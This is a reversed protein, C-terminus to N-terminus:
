DPGCGCGGVRGHRHGRIWGEAHVNQDKASGATDARRGLRIYGATRWSEIEGRRSVVAGNDHRIDIPIGTVSRGPRPSGNGTRKGFLGVSENGEVIRGVTAIM